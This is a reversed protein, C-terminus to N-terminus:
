EKIVIKFRTIWVVLLGVIFLITGPAADSIENSAGVFKSIWSTSGTVGHLFLVVGAIVCCLGLILGTLSYILHLRSVESSVKVSREEVTKPPSAGSSSLGSKKSSDSSYKFTRLESM